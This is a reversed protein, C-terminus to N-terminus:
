WKIKVNGTCYEVEWVHIQNGENAKKMPESKKNDGKRKKKNADEKEFNKLIKLNKQM